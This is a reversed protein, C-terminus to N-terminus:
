EFVFLKIQRGTTCPECGEARAGERRASYPRVCWKGHPCQHARLHGSKTLAIARGCRRCSRGTM